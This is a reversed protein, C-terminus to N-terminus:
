KLFLESQYRSLVKRDFKSALNCIAIAIPNFIKDILVCSFLVALSFLALIGLVGTVSNTVNYIREIIPRIGFVLIFQQQHIVYVMLVSASLWNILKSKINIRSFILFLLLANLILLPSCYPFSLNWLVKGVMTSHLFYYTTCIVVNLLCYFLVINGTKIKDLM